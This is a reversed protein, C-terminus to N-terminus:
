TKPPFLVSKLVQFTLYLVSRVLNRWFSLLNEPKEVGLRVERCLLHFFPFMELNGGELLIDSLVFQLWASWPLWMGEDRSASFGFVACVLVIVGLLCGAWLLADSSTM